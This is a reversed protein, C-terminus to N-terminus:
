DQQLQSVTRSSGCATKIVKNAQWTGNIRYGDTLCCFFFFSVGRRKKVENLSYAPKMGDNYMAVDEDEPKRGHDRAREDQIRNRQIMERVEELKKLALLLSNLLGGVENETPM